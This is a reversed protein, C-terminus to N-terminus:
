SADRPPNAASPRSIEKSACNDIVNFTFLDTRVGGRLAAWPTLKANVAAYLGVDGLVADLDDDKHYPYSPTALVFLRYQQSSAADLRAFYGLELQQALGALEGTRRMWGQAQATLADSELDILDGRQGHPSQVATQQDNLFGTFDESLRM